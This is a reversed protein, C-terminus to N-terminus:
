ITPGSINLYYYLVGDLIRYLNSVKVLVAKAVFSVVAVVEKTQSIVPVFFFMKFCYVPASGPTTRTTRDFGRFHFVIVIQYHLPVNTRVSGGGERM